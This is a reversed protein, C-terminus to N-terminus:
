NSDEGLSERLRRLIRSKIKRVADASMGLRRGAESSTCGDLVVLEFARLANENFETQILELARRALGDGGVAASMTTPDVDPDALQELRQYATTGGKGVARNAPSRAHDIIANRTIKWLWGRFTDGPGDHRFGDIGSLAKIFVQQVLDRADEAGMGTQRCWGYILPTYLRVFRQWGEQDKARVCAILSTSTSGSSQSEPPRTM